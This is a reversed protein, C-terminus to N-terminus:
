RILGPLWLALGPFLIILAMAVMVEIFTFGGDKDSRM